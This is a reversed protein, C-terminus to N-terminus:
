DSATEKGSSTLGPWQMPRLFGGKLLNVPIQKKLDYKEEVVPAAPGASPKKKATQLSPRSGEFPAALSASSNICRVLQASAALQCEVLVSAIRRSRGALM